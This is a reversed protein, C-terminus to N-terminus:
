APDQHNSPGIMGSGVGAGGVLRRASNRSPVQFSTLSLVLIQRKGRM